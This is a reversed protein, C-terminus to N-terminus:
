FPMPEGAENSTPPGVGETVGTGDRDGPVVVRSSGGAEEGRLACLHVAFLRLLGDDREFQTSGIAAWVARAKARARARQEAAAAVGSASRTEPLEGRMAEDTRRDKPLASRRGDHTTEGVRAGRENALVWVTDLQEAYLEAAVLEADHAEYVRRGADDRLELVRHLARKRRLSERARARATAASIPHREGAADTWHGFYGRSPCFRQGTFGAPPRQSAKAFHETIYKTLGVENRIPAVYQGEPEADVHKCWARIMYFSAATWDRKPIGKWFWNWHPRRAGGSHRGYGTTYELEYVYQAGPWRERVAEVVYERGRAFATMDLTATRTTLIAVLQPADGELADLVLMECNEVAALTACYDCRNV